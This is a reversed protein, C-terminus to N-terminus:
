QGEDQGQEDSVGSITGTYKGTAAFFVPTNSADLLTPVVTETFTLTGSANKFRHTGGTIQLSMTCHAEGLPPVSFDICDSGQILSVYLLSNDQFRFVGGAALEQFYLQTPGSCTSSTTPTNGIARIHRVTFSGLTGTGAFNDEDNHSDPQLLNVISPASTGSFNMKVSTQQAYVGAAGLQLMVVVTVIRKM